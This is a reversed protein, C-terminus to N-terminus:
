RRNFHQSFASVQWFDANRFLEMRVKFEPQEHKVILTKPRTTKYHDLFLVSEDPFDFQLNYHFFPFTAIRVKFEKDSFLNLMLPKSSFGLQNLRNRLKFPRSPLQHFTDLFPLLFYLDKESGLPNDSDHNLLLSQLNLGQHIWDDKSVPIFEPTNLEGFVPKLIGKLKEAM